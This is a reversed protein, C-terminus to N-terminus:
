ERFPKNARYLNLRVKSDDAFHKAYEVDQLAKEQYEVAKQFDGSEACAAAMTSLCFPDKWKTLECAKTAHLMSVKGDRLEADLCVARVWAVGMQAESNQPDISEAKEFNELADGYNRNKWECQAKYVLCPVWKPKEKLAESFDAIALDLENLEKYAIARYFIADPGHTKKKIVASFAVIANKYDEKAMCCVGIVWQAVDDGNHIALAQRADSLASDYAGMRAYALARNSLSDTNTPNLRFAASYDSIAPGLNGLMSNANGRNYYVDSTGKGLEIARTLDRASSRPNKMEMNAVGRGAYAESSNPSLEIAVNYEAIALRFKRLRMFNHAAAIRTEISFPDFLSAIRYFGEAQIYSQQSSASLGRLLYIKCVDKAFISAGASDSLAALDYGSIAHTVSLFGLSAILSANQFVLRLSENPVSDKNKSTKNRTDGDDLRKQASGTIQAYILCQIPYFLHGFYVEAMQPSSHSSLRDSGSFAFRDNHELHIASHRFALM